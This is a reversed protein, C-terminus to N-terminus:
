PTAERSKKQEKDHIAYLTVNFNQPLITLTQDDSTQHLNDPLCQSVWANM